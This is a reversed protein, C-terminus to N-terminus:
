VKNEKLKQRYLTELIMIESQTFGLETAKETLCKEPHNAYNHREGLLKDENVDDIRFHEPKM